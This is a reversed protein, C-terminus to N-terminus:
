HPCLSLSGLLQLQLKLFSAHAVALGLLLVSSLVLRDRSGLLLSINLPLSLCLCLSFCLSLSLSLSIDVHILKARPSRSKRPNPDCSSVRPLLHLIYLCHKRSLHSSSSVFAWREILKLHKLSAFSIQQELTDTYGVVSGKGTGLGQEMMEAFISSPL